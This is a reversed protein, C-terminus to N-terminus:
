SKLTTQLEKEGIAAHKETVIIKNKSPFIFYYKGFGPIADPAAFVPIFHHAKCFNVIEPRNHKDITAVEDIFVTIKNQEDDLALRNIISMIIVLRIMRDTGDSEVQDALDVKKPEGKKMLHLEIDFLEEFKIKKQSDLYKNLIELQERHEDVSAFDLSLQGDLDQITSIKKLEEVLKKNDTLEIRLDEIDSIRTKSLKTNFKTVIFERFEEYRRLLTSAPHAFQTSISKLLGDISKQKDNVCAIEDAIYQIFDEESAHSSKVKNKLKEFNLNKIAKLNIRGNEGENHIKIKNYVQDLPENTEFETPQLGINELETKRAKLEKTREETKSKEKQLDIIRISKKAIEENLIKLEKELQENEDTLKKIELTFGDVAKILVPKDNIKQVKHKVTDIQTEIATLEKNVLESDKAVKLLVENYKKEAELQKLEAKLTEISPLEAPKFDKPLTIEGDFIKFTSGTKTVKKKILDSSQSTIEGSLIYNLLKRDEQKGAIEHILQNSYNKIQSKSRNIKSALQEIKDEIKKSTLQQDEITTLKAEIDKRNKDLNSLSQKLFDSTEFTNVENLENQTKTLQHTKNEISFGKRGLEQNLAQEKPKLTENIENQLSSIETSKKLMGVELDPLAVAYGANFAFLLESITKTKAKYQNVIERFSFFDNKISQINKIEDNIKLLDTIDKKDKQSFNLMENERNDAIILSEKLTKNTILKSNILYRYVKSFNNSLGDTKVSDELWVASDNKRGRQYVTSFVETKNKFQYLGINEAELKLKIEEFKLLKQQGEVRDFFIEESYQGDIKYYELEGEADRKVLVCYYSSKFIEFIIFSSNVNPFYHHITEKDGKRQGSFTMKSGDIIFLFNLAYILTSKGINNPGVLQLSDCDDLRLEAKSYVKSNLIVLKKIM